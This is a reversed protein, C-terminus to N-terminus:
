SSNSISVLIRDLESNVPEWGTALKLASIDACIKAIDGNRRPAYVPTISPAHRDRFRHVIQKVSRSTGSGCNVVLNKGTESIYQLSRWFAETADDIHILDRECTGDETDYDNGLIQFEVNGANVARVRCAALADLLSPESGASVEHTMFTGRGAVNFLRLIACTMGYHEVSSLLVDEFMKKSLGYPSKPLLIADEAVIGGPVDGYVAASSAFLFQRIDAAASAEMLAVSHSLNNRYHVLPDRVSEAVSKSAALHVVTRCHHKNLIRAIEDVRSICTEYVPVDGPLRARRGNSLDDVVVVDCNRSQLHRVLHAGVFGAGGTVLIPSLADQM